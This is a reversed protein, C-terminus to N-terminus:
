TWPYSVDHLESESKIQNYEDLESAKYYYTYLMYLPICSLASLPLFTVFMASPETQIGPYTEFGFYIFMMQFMSPQHFSIIAPLFAIYWEKRIIIENFDQNNSKHM